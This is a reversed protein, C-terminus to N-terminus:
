AASLEVPELLTPDDLGDTSRNVRRSVPWVRLLNEPAPRLLETGASGDIWSAFGNEALFVPMRDHVRGAFENAETVIMTCSLLRGPSNGERWEDWLGAISLVGGDAPSFYYPQKGGGEARWEYYGSAPIICRSRKFADRYMPKEAVTDSRANFTAPIEKLSKKWWGPVLGWRMPVVERAGDRLRLVDIETTPAVNYRPELNRAPQTLRYLDVLERWTYKQTFRGCMSRRYVTKLSIGLGTSFRRCVSLYLLSRGCRM